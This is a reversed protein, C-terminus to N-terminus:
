ADQRAKRPSWLRLSVRTDGEVWPSEGTTRPRADGRRQHPDGRHRCKSTAVQADRSVPARQDFTPHLDRRFSTMRISAFRLQALAVSRLFSAPLSFDASATTAIAFGLLAVGLGRFDPPRVDGDIGAIPKKAVSRLVRLGEVVLVFVKGIEGCLDRLERRHEFRAQLLALGDPPLASAAGHAGARVGAVHYRAILM